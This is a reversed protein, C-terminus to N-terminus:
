SLIAFFFVMVLRNPTIGEEGATSSLSSEQLNRGKSFPAVRATMSRHYVPVRTRGSM